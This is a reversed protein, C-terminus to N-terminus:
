SSASRELEEKLIQWQDQVVKPSDNPCHEYDLSELHPHSYEKFHVPNRRYCKIGFICKEKSALKGKKPDSGSESDDNTRKTAM